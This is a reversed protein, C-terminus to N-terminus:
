EDLGVQIKSITKISESVWELVIRKEQQTIESNWHMMKYQFPPMTENKTSEMITKLDEIPSGHGGFPFGKSMDIHEKAEEIDHDILQKVIPIKYYWPLKNNAGHCMLCKSSFIPKISENYVKSVQNLKNKYNNRAININAQVNKKEKDIDHNKNGHALVVCPLFILLLTIKIHVKQLEM